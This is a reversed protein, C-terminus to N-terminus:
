GLQGTKIHTAGDESLRGLLHGNAAGSDDEADSDSALDFLVTSGNPEQDDHEVSAALPQREEDAIVQLHHVDEGGVSDDGIPNGHADLPVPSDISKRYKHYTFLAIGCITVAVGTINLPTLQDGFFWASITITSVEKAIGAISMPLVGARQIISVESLIMCFALVGPVTLLFCTRLTSGLSDFFPSGILDTWRDVILSVVSLLVGMIPALWFITSVPNDMGLKKDKLLVQTLAWRLGGLASGSLVLFFGGLVFHTETAVMLLVGAFILGIVAILRVSFVELRFMFAFLLVFILSSSKVMTYFSLTITKLSLNSLGIDLGTTIGTPVVKTAYDRRSPLHEARFRRPWLARLSAALAFQVYMHMMTVFLPFPFGFHDHSFMWKNYVSLITAFFYWSAIFAANIFANRWWRAKKEELTALHVHDDEDRVDHQAYPPPQDVDLDDDAPADLVHAPADLAM